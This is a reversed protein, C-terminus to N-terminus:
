QEIKKAIYQEVEEMSNFVAGYYLATKLDDPVEEYPIALRMSLSMQDSGLNTKFVGLVGDYAKLILHDPCYQKISKQLTLAKPSFDLVKINKFKAEFEKLTLGTMDSNIKSEAKVTHGCTEYLFEWAIVCAEETRQENAAAPLSEQAAEEHVISDTNLAMLYGALSAVLM